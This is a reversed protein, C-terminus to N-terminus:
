RAGYWIEQLASAASRHIRIAADADRRLEEINDLLEDLNQHICDYSCAGKQEPCEDDHVVGQRMLHIREPTIM